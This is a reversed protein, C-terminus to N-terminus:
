RPCRPPSWSRLEASWVDLMKATAIAAARESCHCTAGTCRFPSLHLSFVNGVVVLPVTALDPRFVREFSAYASNVDVHAVM